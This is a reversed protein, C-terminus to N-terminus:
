VLLNVSAIWKLFGAEARASSGTAPEGDKVNCM